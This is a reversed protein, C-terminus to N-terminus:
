TGRAACAAGQPKAAPPPRCSPHCAPPSSPISSTGQCLHGVASSEAVTQPSGGAVQSTMPALAGSQPTGTTGGAAAV